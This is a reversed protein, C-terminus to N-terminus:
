YMDAYASIQMAELKIQLPCILEKSLIMHFQRGRQKYIKQM